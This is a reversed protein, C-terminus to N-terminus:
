FPHGRRVAVLRQAIERVAVQHGAPLTDGDKKGKLMEFLRLREGDWRRFLYVFLDLESKGAIWRALLHRRWVPIARWIREALEEAERNRWTTHSEGDASWLYEAIMIPAIKDTWVFGEPERRAYGLAVFAWMAQQLYGPVEFPARQDSVDGQYGATAWLFKGVIRDLCYSIEGHFEELHTRVHELPMAFRYCSPSECRFVGLEHMIECGHEYVSEAGDWMKTQYTPDSQGLNQWMVRAIHYGVEVFLKREEPSLEM